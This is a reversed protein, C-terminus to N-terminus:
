PTDRQNFLQETTVNFPNHRSGQSDDRSGRGRGQYNDSIQDRTFYEFSSESGPTEIYRPARQTSKKKKKSREIM